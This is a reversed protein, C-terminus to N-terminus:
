KGERQKRRRRSGGVAGDAALRDGRMELALADLAGEGCVRLRNCRGRSAAFRPRDAFRRRRCDGLERDGVEDVGVDARLEERVFDLV